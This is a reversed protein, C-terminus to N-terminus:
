KEKQFLSDSNTEFIWCPTIAGYVANTIDTGGMPASFMRNCFTTRGLTIPVCLRYQYDM